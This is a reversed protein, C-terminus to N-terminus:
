RGGAPLAAAAVAVEIAVDRLDVGSSRQVSRRSPCSSYQAPWRISAPTAWKRVVPRRCAARRSTDTHRSCRCRTRCAAPGSLAAVAAMGLDLQRQHAQVAGGALAAEELQALVEDVLAARATSSRGRPVRASHGLRAGAVAVVSPMAQTARLQTAVVLRVRRHALLALHDPVRHAGHVQVRGHGVQRALRLIWRQALRTLAQPRVQHRPPQVDGAADARRPEVLAERDVVVQRVQRRVGLRTRGHSQDEPRM